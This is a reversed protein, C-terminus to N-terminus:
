RQWWEEGGEDVQARLEQLKALAAEIRAALKNHEARWVKADATPTDARLREVEAELGEIILTVAGTVEDWSTHKDPLGREEQMESLARTADEEEALVERIADRVEPNPNEDPGFMADEVALHRELTERADTM